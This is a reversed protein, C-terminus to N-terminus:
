WILEQPFFNALLNKYYLKIENTLVFNIDEKSYLDFKNFELVDQKIDNDSPIEFYKYDNGTHWPYFSHYRIIKQYKHSLKHNKNNQLVRYLYEDHGFSLLLKEIGCNPTYVGYKTNYIYNYYDPNEKMTDYYIISKAFECGVVFTDGVVSWAPENFNLLIKGLDHIIGCVQLELNLPQEKRIREATQYAHISNENSVDPDSPDIFKDMMSLVENMTMKKNSNTSYQKLKTKVYNYTQNKHLEKYFEYQPTNIKYDRLKSKKKMKEFLISLM